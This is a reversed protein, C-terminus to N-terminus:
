KQAKKNGIKSSSPTNEYNQSAVPPSTTGKLGLGDMNLGGPNIVGEGLELTAEANPFPCLCLQKNM